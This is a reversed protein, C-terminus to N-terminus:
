PGRAVHPCRVPSAFASSLSPPPKSSTAPAAGQGGEKLVYRLVIEQIGRVDGRPCYCRGRGAQRTCARSINPPTNM